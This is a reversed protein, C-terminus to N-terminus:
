GKGAGKPGRRDGVSYLTRVAEYLERYRAHTDLYVPRLHPEPEYTEAEHVARRCAASVDAFVGTGVGALLAAGFAPGEDIRVTHTRTGLADALMRCWLSERAGGGTVLVRRVPIRLDNMLEFCDLIGCVVGEMVARVVHGRGHRNTLGFLLGRAHPNNIPTREGTLYPHFLLGESGAPVERALSILKEFPEPAGPPSLVERVWELSGGAALMVGMTHWLGPSAHCFAHLRGRPDALYRDSSAFVVGSTGLSVTITGEAVNGTGVAGAAQDGAGAVVPIGAPLGARGAVEARLRGVVETAEHVDPLIARDVALRDLVLGSWDRGAVDLLLTGSADSVETAKEGTLHFRVYDKPLLVQRLRRFADPENSRLWLIKPASFGTLALNGTARILDEVGGLAEQIEECERFTRQDNWLLAPRIVRDAGDLFVTGHMQGSLGIGRVREGRFADSRSLRVLAREAAQAWDRPDQEAWGPQPTHLPYPESVRALPKGDQGVLVAKLATTGADLGILLDPDKM